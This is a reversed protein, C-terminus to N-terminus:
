VKSYPFAKEKLTRVDSISVLHRGNSTIYQQLVERHIWTHITRIPLNCQKSARQVSIFEEDKLLQTRLSIIRDALIPRIAKIIDDVLIDISQLLIDAVARHQSDQLAKSLKSKRTKLLM